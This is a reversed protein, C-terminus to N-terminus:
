GLYHLLEYRTYDMLKAAAFLGRIFLAWCKYGEVQVLYDLQGVYDCGRDRYQMTMAQDFQHFRLREGNPKHYITGDEM